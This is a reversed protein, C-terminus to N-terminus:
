AFDQRSLPLLPLYFKNPKKNKEEVHSHCERNTLGQTNTTSPFIEGPFIKENYKVNELQSLLKEHLGFLICVRYKRAGGTPVSYVRFFFDAHHTHTIQPQSRAGEANLNSKLAHNCGCRM